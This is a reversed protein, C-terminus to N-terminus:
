ICQSVVISSVDVEPLSLELLDTEYHDVDM